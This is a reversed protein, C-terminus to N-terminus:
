VVGVVKWGWYYPKVWPCKYKFALPCRIPYRLYEKFVLALEEPSKEEELGFKKGMRRKLICVREDDQYPCWDLWIFIPKEGGLMLEGKLPNRGARIVREVFELSDPEKKGPRPGITEPFMWHYSIKGEEDVEKTVMVPAVTIIDGKELKTPENYTTGIKAYVKGKIEVLADKSFEKIRDKPVPGVAVKYNYVGVPKGERVVQHRDYVICDIEKLNKYKSVDKTRTVGDILYKCEPDYLMAGESEPLTAYKFILRKLEDKSRAISYDVVKFHETERPIAKELYKRRETWPLNWLEKGDLYLIDWVYFKVLSDDQVEKGTAFRIMERRLKPETFSKDKFEVLEAHGIFERAKIARLADKSCNPMYPARDQETDETIFYVRDGRKQIEIALGDLKPEVIIGKDIREKAWGEWVGGEGEFRHIFEVTKKPKMFGLPKSWNIKALEQEERAIKKFSLRYIAMARGVLPGEPDFFVHLKRAILPSKKAVEEKLKFPIRWDPYHQKVLIDIDHGPLCVGRNVISGVLWIQSPDKDIELREPLAELVEKLEISREELEEPWPEPYEQQYKLSARDLASRPNYKWELGRRKIEDVVLAHNKAREERNTSGRERDWEYLLRLYALLKKDDLSRIQFDTLFSDIEEKSPLEIKELLEPYKDRLRNLYSEVPGRATDYKISYEELRRRVKEGFAGAIVESEQPGVDNLFERKLAEVAEIGTSYNNELWDVIRWEEVLAFKAAQGFRPAIMKGEEDTAIVMKKLRTEKELLEIDKQIVQVGRKRRYRRPKEFKEVINVRYLFLTRKGPWWREKESESVRHEDVRERFEQLDIPTPASLKIVGYVKDGELLYLSVGIYKEPLPKGKVIATKEGTWILYGHPPVLYLGDKAKETAIPVEQPVETSKVVLERELAEPETELLKWESEKLRPKLYKEYFERTIEKMREPHLTIINPNKLKRRALEKLIIVGTKVITDLSFKIRKKPNRYTSYWACVIRFDDRVQDDRAERHYKEPDKIPAEVLESKLKTDITLGDKAVEAVIGKEAGIEAVLSELKREDMEIAETGWHTFIAYPVGADSCWGVQTQISSHGVRDNDITRVLGKKLSSGDGVYIDVDKLIERLRKSNKELTIIDSSHFITTEGARIKFASSPAKTSHETAYSTIRFPGIRFSDDRKFLTIDELLAKDLHELTERTLYVPKSTGKSLGGIHDPHGHTLLIYDPDIEELDRTSFTEGLDVLLKKDKYVYLTASKHRHNADSEDVEGRTGYFKIYMSM